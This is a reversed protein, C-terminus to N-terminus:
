ALPEAQTVNYSLSAHFGMGSRVPALDALEEGVTKLM